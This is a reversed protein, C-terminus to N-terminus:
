CCYVVVCCFVLVLSLLLSFLCVCDYLVPPVRTPRPVRALQAATPAPGSGSPAVSLQFVAPVVAPDRTLVGSLCFLLLIMMTMVVFGAASCCCCCDPALIYIYIYIYVFVLESLEYLPLM